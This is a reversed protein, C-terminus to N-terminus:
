NELKVFKSGQMGIRIFYVGAPLHSIDIKINEGYNTIQFEYNILSEGFTNYIKIEEGSPIWRSPHSWRDLNIEIYESAPNPSIRAHTSYRNDLISTTTNILKTVTDTKSCYEVILRVEYTSVSEYKHTPNLDSSVNGDGFDWNYSVKEPNLSLNSFSVTTGDITYDFNAIPYNYYVNWKIKDNSLVQNAVTRFYEAKTQDLTTNDKINLPSDNNIVGYFVCAALYSGDYNPHSLDNDHLIYSSNEIVQKWAIDVPAITAKIKNSIDVYASELSDQMHSFDRFEPSCHVGSPDCQKGGYRRGWTMYSIIVSCPNYKRITDAIATMSPYMSNHRYFDITPLQSQEQLVVYDWKGDRIYQMSILNTLHGEIILGGPSNSEVILDKGASKSLTSVLLPLNNYFTYSNGLFLVRKSEGFCLSFSLMIFIILLLKVKIFYKM